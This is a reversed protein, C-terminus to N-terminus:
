CRVPPRGHRPAHSSVRPQPTPTLRNIAEGGSGERTYKDAFGLEVGKGKVHQLRELARALALRFLAALVLVTIPWALSRVQEVTLEDNMQHVVESDLCREEGGHPRASLALIIAREVRVGAGTAAAEVSM